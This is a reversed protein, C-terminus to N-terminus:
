EAGEALMKELQELGSPEGMVILYDGGALKEDDAPNYLMKGSSRRLALVVVEKGKNM